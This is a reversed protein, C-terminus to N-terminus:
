TFQRRRRPINIINHFFLRTIKEELAAVKGINGIAGSYSGALPALAAAGRSIYKGSKLASNLKGFKDKIWDWAPGEGKMRRKRRPM